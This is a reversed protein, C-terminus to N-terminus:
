DGLGGERGGFSGESVLDAGKDSDEEVAGVLVELSLSAADLSELRTRFQIGPAKRM